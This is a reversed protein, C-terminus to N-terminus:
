KQVELLAWENLVRKECNTLKLSNLVEQMKASDNEYFGSLLLHGGVRLRVAYKSMDQLLVNRNINALIIDFDKEAVSDVTGKTIYVKEAVKNIELNELANEYANEDIDVAVVAAGKKAAFIALIGTGCGVDLVKKGTLDLCLLTELMLTTTEHHGTGFSMKPNIVIEETVEAMPEHFTSRVLLKDAILVPNYNREWEANWNKEELLEWDYIFDLMEIQKLLMNLMEKDFMEQFIYADVGELHEEFAEYGLENLYAILIENALKSARKHRFHVIIYKM